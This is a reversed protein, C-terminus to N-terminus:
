ISGLLFINFTEHKGVPAQTETLGISRVTCSVILVWDGASLLIRVVETRGRKAAWHLPTMDARDVAEINVGIHVYLLM